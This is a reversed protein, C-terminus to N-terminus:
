HRWRKGRKGGCLTCTSAVDHIAVDRANNMLSFNFLIFWEVM